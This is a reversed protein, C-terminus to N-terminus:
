DSFLYACVAFLALYRQFFQGSDDSFALGGYGLVFFSFDGYIHFGEIQYGSGKHYRYLLKQM